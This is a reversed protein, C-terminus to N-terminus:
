IRSLRAFMLDLATLYQLIFFCLYEDTLDNIFM